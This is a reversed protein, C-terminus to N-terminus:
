NSESDFTGFIDMFVPRWMTWALEAVEATRAGATCALSYMRGPRVLIVEASVVHVRTGSTEHYGAVVILYAPHNAIQIL